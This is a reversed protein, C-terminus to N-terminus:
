TFIITSTGNPGGVDFTLGTPDVNLTGNLVNLTVTYTAGPDLAEDVDIFSIGSILADVVDESVTVSLPATIVPADNVALVDIAINDTDSLPEFDGVNGLDNTIIQINASGHYDATPNFILGDLAANINAITGRFIMQTDTTGDGVNG